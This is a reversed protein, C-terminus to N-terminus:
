GDRENRKEIIGKFEELKLRFQEYRFVRPDFNEWELLLVPIKLEMEIAQKILFADAAVTRCGVHYHDLVGDVKYKRCVDLILDVRMRLPLAISNRLVQICQFYPDTRQIPMHSQPALFEYDSAVLAMGLSNILHELRPDSHHPPLIQLLRPAGRPVAGVGSEVREKLELYLTEAAQKAEEIDELPLAMPILWGMLNEHTPSLPVPDSKRILDRVKGIARAYEKRVELVEYLMEDKIEFDVLKSLKNVAKKLSRAALEFVRPALPGEEAERDQCTDYYIAPIGLLESILDNTKASTECLFGSTITVDPKPILGLSLIGLRSKVMGCHRVTGAKLWLKEAQELIPTFRDFICGLIVMFPSNPVQVYVHKSFSTFASGFAEFGSAMCAHVIREKGEEKALVLRVLEKLFVGLLRRIGSLELDYFTRMREKGRKIDEEGIGLKAFAKKVREVESEIHADKYGCLRLFERM